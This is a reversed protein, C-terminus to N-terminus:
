LARLILPDNVTAARLPIWLFQAVGILFAIFAALITLPRKLIRWDTLLVFFAYAPAFGLNSLHTGFSLGFILAFAIFWFEKTMALRPKHASAIELQSKSIAESRECHCSWVLLLWVTLALMFVNPAYVETIVAQSWFTTSVGFLLATFAAVARTLEVRRAILYLLAVGGAGLLACMLNTRHAVEGVPLRAFLFGLWTFLPYGTPHALGLTAAVTTLENGDPSAYSLGPTLTAHYLLFCIAFIVFAILADRARPPNNAQPEM